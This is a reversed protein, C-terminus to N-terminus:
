KLKIGNMGLFALINDVAPEIETRALTREDSEFHLRVTISTIGLEDRYVDVLSASRFFPLATTDAWAAEIDAYRMGEGGILSLDVDIGPFRSPQKYELEAGEANAFDKVDIEAFVIAAKKDTKSLVVPHCVAMSGIVKGGMSISATNKPHEWAHAPETNEFRVPTHKIDAAMKGIMDHLRLYLDREGCTHSVLIIGLKKQEDCLGNEDLGNIVHGIEFMGYDSAYGKNEQAFVLLTPIMSRRLISNDVTMANLLEVNPEPEIGIGEWKKNDCWIYSHVEHLSYKKVLLDKIGNECRKEETKLVPYLAEEATRIEFNDYGYIRTIEEVIDANITVDKTARWSPVTVTFDDGNREVGFGLATLTDYIRDSSIDIGTYRDIYAKDFSLKVTDYHHPYNDSLRSTIKAEPDIQKLLYLFRALAPVTLEPDLMKEYRMSADTRLGMRSSSKRVCVGDFCASELLLSDTDDAISSADGGMIGAIAVPEGGSCIMLTNEDIPRDIGDLTKYEFPKDFRRVDIKSVKRKDFAHMPQGLEFMIYNTLDALLNIARSGCYYLRIRMNVPSTKVTINEATMGSYRYCHESDLIEIDVPPLNDFASLDLEEPKKLERGTLAAFERAIGYHGWLDPRNTLSKNDVEFITDEIDYVTKLDTGLPIDDTIEMLGSGDASIGLEAESCCMGYSTYGAVTAEKIPTGAVFGGAKAFAVKMGERVNPAGCVCDYVKDGADVKLLHLKKSGPHDEISVIKGCVVNNTDNGKHYIDEVEATSLTFRHILGDIDIGDLDVFESIWKMSVFM